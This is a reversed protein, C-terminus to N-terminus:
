WRSQLDALQASCAASRARDDTTPSILFHREVSVTTRITPATNLTAIAQLQMSMQAGTAPPSFSRHIVSSSVIETTLDENLVTLGNFGSSHTPLTRHRVPQDLFMTVQQGSAESGPSNRSTHTNDAPHGACQMTPLDRQSLPMVRYSCARISGSANHGTPGLRSFSNKGSRGIQGAKPSFM